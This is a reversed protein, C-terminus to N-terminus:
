RRKQEGDNVQHQAPAAFYPSNYFQPNTIARSAANDGEIEIALQHVEEWTACRRLSETGDPNPWTRREKKTEKATQKNIKGYYAM